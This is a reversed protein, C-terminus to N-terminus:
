LNNQKEIVIAIDSPTNVDKDFEIDAESEQKKVEGSQHESQGGRELSIVEM